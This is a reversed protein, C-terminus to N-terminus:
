KLLGSDYLQEFAREVRKQYHGLLMKEKIISIANEICETKTREIEGISFGTDFHDCKWSKSGLRRVCIRALDTDVAYGSVPRKSPRGESDFVAINYNILETNM